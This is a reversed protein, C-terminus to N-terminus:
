KGDTIVESLKILCAAFVVSESSCAMRTAKELEEETLDMEEIQLIMARVRFIPDKEEDFKM